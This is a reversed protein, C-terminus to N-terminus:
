VNRVYDELVSGLDLVLATFFDVCEKVESYSPAAFGKGRHIITNRKDMIRDLRERSFKETDVESNSNFHSQLSNEKSLQEWVKNLGLRKIHESIISPKFNRENSSYSEVILPAPSIPAVLCRYLSNVINNETLHKFKDQSLNQLIGGCGLTHEEQMKIPLSSFLGKKCAVQNATEEILDRVAQEFQACASLFAGECAISLGFPILRAKGHVSLAAYEIPRYPVYNAINTKALDFTELCLDVFIILKDMESKFSNSISFM